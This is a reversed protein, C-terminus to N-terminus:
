VGLSLRQSYLPPLAVNRRSIMLSIIFLFFHFCGFVCSYNNTHIDTADLHEAHKQETRQAQKQVPWKTMTGKFKVRDIINEINKDCRM